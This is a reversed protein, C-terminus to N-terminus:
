RTVEPVGFAWPAKQRSAVLPAANASMVERDHLM